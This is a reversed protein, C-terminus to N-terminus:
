KPEKKLLEEPIYRRQGDDLNVIYLRDTVRQKVVGKKAIGDRCTYIIRDGPIM